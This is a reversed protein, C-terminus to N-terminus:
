IFKYLHTGSGIKEKNKGKKTKSSKKNGTSSEEDDDDEDIMEDEPNLRTSPNNDANQYSKILKQLM